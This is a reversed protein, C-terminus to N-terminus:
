ATATTTTTQVLVYYYYLGLKYYYYFICSNNKKSYVPPIIIPIHAGYLYESICVCDESLFVLIFFYIIGDYGPISDATPAYTRTRGMEVTKKERERERVQREKQYKSLGPCMCHFSGQVISYLCSFFICPVM